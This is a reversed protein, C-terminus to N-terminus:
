KVDCNALGLGKLDFLCLLRRAPNREADAAAFAADLVFAMLKKNEEVTSGATMFHRSARILVVARGVNDIGQLCAKRASLCVPISCPDVRGAGASPLLLPPPPPPTASGGSGGGRPTRRGSISSASSSRPPLSPGGRSGSGNASASRGGDASESRPTATGNATATATALGSSDASASFSTLFPGKPDTRWAVHVRLAQLTARADGARPQLWRKVMEADLEEGARSMAAGHEPLLLALIAEVAGEDAAYRPTNIKLPRGARPLSADYGIASPAVGNRM